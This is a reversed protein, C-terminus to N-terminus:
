PSTTTYSIAIMKHLLHISIYWQSVNRGYLGPVRQERYSRRPSVRWPEWQLAESRSSHPIILNWRSNLTLTPIPKLNLSLHHQLSIKTQTRRWKKGGKPKCFKLSYYDYPLLTHVSSRKTSTFNKWLLLVASHKKVSSITLTYRLKNVKLDIEDGEGYSHRLKLNTPTFFFNFWFLIILYLM